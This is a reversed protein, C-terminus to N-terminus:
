AVSVKLWRDPVLDQASLGMKPGFWPEPVAVIKDPNTSLWAGWWSFTSGAIIFHDCLSMAAMDFWHSLGPSYEVDPGTVAERCWPIDDSFMVYVPKLEAIQPTARFEACQEATFVRYRHLARPELADGRRVHFAVLPRGHQRRLSSIYEMAPLMIRDHFTLERRVKAECHAFYKESQFYGSFLTNDPATFMRPNFTFTQEDWKAMGAWEHEHTEKCSIHFPELEVMGTPKPRDYRKLIRVEAGTKASIGLLTAYQFLQNGLQGQIGLLRHTIM